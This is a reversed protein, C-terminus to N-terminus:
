RRDSVCRVMLDSTSAAMDRPTPYVEVFKGVGAIYGYVMDQFDGTLRSSTWLSVGELEAPAPESGTSDFYFEDENRSGIASIVKLHQCTLDDPDCKAVVGQAGWSMALVALERASPLRASRPPTTCGLRKRADETECACYAVADHFTTNIPEGNYRRFDHFVPLWEPSMIFARNAAGAQDRSAQYEAITHGTPQAGAEAINFALTSALLLFYKKLLM